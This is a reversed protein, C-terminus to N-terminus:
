PRRAELRADSVPPRKSSSPAGRQGCRAQVRSTIHDSSPPNEGLGLSHLLEHILVTEVHRSNKKMERVFRPTCVFIARSRPTTVALNSTGCIREPADYFFVRGLYASASVGSEELAARLPRGSVDEFEDLLAQCGPQELERASADLALGLAFRGRSDTLRVNRYDAAPAAQPGAAVLAAALLARPRWHKRGERGERGQM